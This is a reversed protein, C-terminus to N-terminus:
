RVLRKVGKFDIHTSPNIEVGGVDTRVAVAVESHALPVWPARDAILEQARAYIEQREERNSSQQAAALLKDLEPNRYFAVNRALGPVTNDSDFLVYLFNDPDGNDGVWGLLCLDHDGRQVTSLHSRFGQVVLETQIGVDALNTQLVRAVGEPDPLYPRPTFSVYFRHIKDPDFAGDAAAEDLLARATARDYPYREGGPHHGWQEPPLPGFAQVALGQYALKVIPEKNTAFNVARRVRVDDFPPRTSNMALYAVNNAPRRKLDLGPHLAVFQLEAPPISYAVDIAGSELAILRQRGDPMAQFVLREIEPAGGWYNPNRELVIREGPTYSVFMFPGSGVPADRFGPGLAEVATPSVIGVNIMREMFEMDYAGMDVRVTYEDVAEISRMRQFYSGYRLNNEPVRLREINFVVAEANLPTGDTFTIGERIHWTYVGDPTAEWREIVWGELGDDTMHVLHDAIAMNYNVADITGGVTPDTSEVDRILAVVFTSQGFALSSVVLILSAILAAFRHQM